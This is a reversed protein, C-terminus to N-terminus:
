LTNTTSVSSNKKELLLNPSPCAKYLDSLFELRERMFGLNNNFWPLVKGARGMKYIKEPFSRLYATRLVGYFMMFKGEAGMSSDDIFSWDTDGVIGHFTFKGEMTIPRCVKTKLEKSDHGGSLVVEYRIGAHDSLGRGASTVQEGLPEFNIFVNDVCKDNRTPFFVRQRFGYTALMDGLAIDEWEGTM